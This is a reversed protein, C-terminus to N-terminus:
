AKLATELAALDHFGAELKRGNVVFTPTATVGDKRSNRDVRANLAAFAKDDQMCRDFDADSLGCGRAIALLTERPAKFLQEQDRYIADVVPFYKGRGASRALVFGAAAATLEVGGGVLMERYTFRVRGTDVYRAKFAPYVERAWQGCVPCGVSAYEVLTAKAAGSGQSMDDPLAAAASGSAPKSCASLSTALTTTLGAVLARRDTLKPM